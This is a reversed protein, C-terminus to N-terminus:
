MKEALNSSIQRMINQFHINNLLNEEEFPSHPIQIHSTRGMFDGTPTFIGETENWEFFKAIGNEEHGLRFIWDSNEASNGSNMYHELDTSHTRLQWKVGDASKWEASISYLMKGNKSTTYPNIQITSFRPMIRLINDVTLTNKRKLIQLVSQFHNVFERDKIRTDIPEIKLTPIGKGIICRSDTDVIRIPFHEIAEAYISDQKKSYKSFGFLSRQLKEKDIQPLDDIKSIAGDYGVYYQGEHEWDKILVAPKGDITTKAVAVRFSNEGMNFILNKNEDLRVCDKYFDTPNTGLKSIKEIDSKTLNSRIQRSEEQLLKRASEFAKSVVEKEGTCIRHWKMLSEQLLPKLDFKTLDFLQSLLLLQNIGLKKINGNLDEYILSEDKLLRLIVSYLEPKKVLFVAEKEEMGLKILEQYKTIEEATHLKYDYSFKWYIDTDANCLVSEKNHEYCNNSLKLVLKNKIAKYQKISKNTIVFDKSTYPVTEPLYKQPIPTTRIKINKNPSICSNINPLERHQKIYDESFFSFEKFAKEKIRKSFIEDTKMYKEILKQRAELQDITLRELTLFEEINNMIFNYNFIERDSADKKIWNLIDEVEFKTEIGSNRVSEQAFYVNRLKAFRQVQQENFDYKACYAAEEPPLTYELIKEKSNQYRIKKDKLELFKSIEKNSITQVETEKLYSMYLAKDPEINNQQRLSVFREMNRENMKNKIIVDADEIDIQRGNILRERLKVFDSIEEPKYGKKMVFEAERFDLPRLINAGQYKFERKLPNTLNIFELSYTKGNEIEKATRVDKMINELEELTMNSSTIKEGFARKLEPKHFIGLGKNILKEYFREINLIRSFHCEDCLLQELKLGYSEASKVSFKEVSPTVYPKRAQTLIKKGINLISEIGM